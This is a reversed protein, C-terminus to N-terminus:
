SKLVGARAGGSVGGASKEIRRNVGSAPESLM